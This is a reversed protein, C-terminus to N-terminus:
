RNKVLRIGNFQYGIHPHFFNRYTKRSHGIPTVVSSGRLVQQNVMFKGNYEGAVLNKSFGPYPIYSSSTWEWRKGWPFKDAAAEWEFETPLRCGKWEAFAFAEYYSIHTLVHNPNIKQIGSLTYQYFENEKMIWYMPLNIKNQRVWNWGEEHWFQYSNYGGDQIFEMYEGNSVLCNRISYKHLFVQHLGLENDFCFEEGVHGISYIGEEMDIWDLNQIEMDEVYAKESYVPNLPNLSWTYKLDTFFLEQHQQEHHIGLVILDNCEVPLDASILELMEADIAKRYDIVGRVTPRSLVGRTNRAIRNGKENYYSNFLFEYVPHFKKYEPIYRSLIFEEFFWTTHGLNWKPPSVFDIAQPIYDEIELPEMIKLSLNRVNTYSEKLNLTSM